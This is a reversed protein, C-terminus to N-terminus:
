LWVCFGKSTGCCFKGGVVPEGCVVVFVEVVVEVVVVVVVVGVVDM